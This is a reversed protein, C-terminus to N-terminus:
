LASLLANLDFQGAIDRATGVPVQELVRDVLLAFGRCPESALSIVRSRLTIVSPAAGTLATADVVTLVDGEFHVVGVVPLPLRENGAIPLLETALSLRAISASALTWRVGAVVIVLDTAPGPEAPLRRAHALRDQLDKLAERPAASM